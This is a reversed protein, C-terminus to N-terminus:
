PFGVGLGADLTGAVAGTRFLEEQAGAADVYYISVPHLPVVLGLGLGLELPGVIRQTLRGALSAQVIPQEQGVGSGSTFGYGVARLAGVELETCAALRTGGSAWRLPCLGLMGYSLSLVVGKSSPSAAGAPVARAELFVAGGIEVPFLNPPTIEGRLSLAFAAGPLLGLAFTPAIALAERWPERPPPPPAPAPVPVYVREVVVRPAAPPPPRPALAAEPDILLAVVLAIQEDLARCAVGSGDLDRTGLVAGAANSLTIHAHFGPPQGAPAPEIRGEILVDAEAPSVFVTRGLRQEVALALDRAGMCAEAGALRAWGLSSSPRPEAAAPRAGSALAFALALASAFPRLLRRM